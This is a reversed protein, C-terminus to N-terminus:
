TTMPKRGERYNGGPSPVASVASLRKLRKGSAESKEGTRRFAAVRLPFFLGICRFGPHVIWNSILLSTGRADHGPACLGQV